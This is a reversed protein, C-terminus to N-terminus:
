IKVKVPTGNKVKQQGDTIVTANLSLGRIIQVENKAHQGIVVPVALAKGEVVTYVQEGDLVPVLSRAPVM